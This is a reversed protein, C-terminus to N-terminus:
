NEYFHMERIYQYVGPPFFSGTEKGDNIAKRLFSSSIEMIPADVMSYRGHIKEPNIKVGLRPYAFIQYRSLLEEANKWKYVNQLNDSGMILFFNRDSFKEELYTLTNITFSPRPLNFEIDVPKIDTYPECAIQVMQYRQREALLNKKEKFPNQPSVVLWVEDLLTFELMYQAIVLHGIHVPNFSGFFLGTNKLKQM